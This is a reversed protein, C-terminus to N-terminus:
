LNCSIGLSVTSSSSSPDNESVPYIEDSAHDFRYEIRFVFGNYKFVPVLTINLANFDPIGLGTRIGDQDSFYEIRSGLDINDSLTIVPQIGFGLWSAETTDITESGYNVQFNLAVRPIVKTVGTLDISLRADNGPEPQEVGWSFSLGFALPDGSNVGLRGIVTKDKNNDILLDWGNVVGLKIDIQDFPVFTFYAGVHTFAEALGYLYGRSITPNVPGEIVEIGEFTVFKGGTFKFKDSLAYTIAAEQIDVAVPSAGLSGHVAADTGFDVEALYSVKDSASGTVAFHVNNLLIQNARADYSRLMNVTTDGSYYNYTTEIYGSFVPINDQAFSKQVAPILFVVIFASFYIKM